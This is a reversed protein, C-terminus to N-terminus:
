AYMVVGRYGSGRKRYWVCCHLCILSHCVAKAKLGTHSLILGIIPLVHVSGACPSFPVLM